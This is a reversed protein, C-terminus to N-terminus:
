AGREKALEISAKYASKNVMGMIRDTLEVSKKSGYRIKLMAFVDGLGTVGLGIRRKSKMENIQQDLSMYTTEIVNDMMRVVIPIDKELQDFDFAADKDFPNN